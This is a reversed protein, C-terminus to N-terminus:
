EWGVRSDRAPPNIYLCGSARLCPCCLCVAVDHDISEDEDADLDQACYVGLNRDLVKPWEYLSVVTLLCLLVDLQSMNNVVGAGRRISSLVPYSIENLLFM